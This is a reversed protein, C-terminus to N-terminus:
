PIKNILNLMIDLKTEVIDGSSNVVYLNAICDVKVTDTFLTVSLFYFLFAMNLSTPIQQGFYKKNLSM